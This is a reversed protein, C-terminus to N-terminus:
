VGGGGNACTDAHLHANFANNGFGTGKFGASTALEPKMLAASSQGLEGYGTGTYTALYSFEGNFTGHGSRTLDACLM